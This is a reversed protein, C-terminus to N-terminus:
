ALQQAQSITDPWAARLNPSGSAPQCSIPFPLSLLSPVFWCRFSPHHHPYATISRSSLLSILVPQIVLSQCSHPTSPLLTSSLQSCTKAGDPSTGGLCGLLGISHALGVSVPHGHCPLSGPDHVPHETSHGQGASSPKSLKNNPPPPTLEVYSVRHSLLLVLCGCSPFVM